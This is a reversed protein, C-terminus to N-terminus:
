KKNFIQGVFLPLQYWKRELPLMIDSDDKSVLAALVAAEMLLM